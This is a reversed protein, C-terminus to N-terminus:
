GISVRPCERPCAEESLASRVGFARLRGPSGTGAAATDIVILDCEADILAKSRELGKDGVTSAAAVRLRGMEDKCAQPNLVSKETDKLTLLGTLKGKGHQADIRRQGGGMRAGERKAELQEIIALKSM